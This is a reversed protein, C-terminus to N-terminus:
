DLTEADELAADDDEFLGVEVLEEYTVVEKNFLLMVFQSFAHRSISNLALDAEIKQRSKENEELSKDMERVKKDLKQTAYENIYRNTFWNKARDLLETDSLEILNGDLQADYRVFVSADTDHVAVITQNLTPNYYRSYVGLSM